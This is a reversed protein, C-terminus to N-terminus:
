RLFRSSLFHATYPLVSGIKVIMVNSHRQSLVAPVYCGEFHDFKQVLKCSTSEVKPETSLSQLEKFGAGCLLIKKDKAKM